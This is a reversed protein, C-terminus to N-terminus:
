PGFIIVAFGILCIVIVSWGIIILTLRRGLVALVTGALYTLALLILTFVNPGSTPLTSNSAAAYTGVKSISGFISVVLIAMLAVSGAAQVRGFSGPIGGTSVQDQEWKSYMALQGKPFFVGDCDPCTWSKVGAIASDNDAQSMLSGDNPCTLDLNRLSYNPVPRDYQAVLDSMFPETLPRPFWFGGCQTCRKANIISGSISKLDIPEYDGHCQPCQM